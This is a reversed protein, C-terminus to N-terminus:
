QGFFIWGTFFTFLFTGVIIGIMDAFLDGFSAVHKDPHKYDYIEKGASAIIPPILGLAIWDSDFICIFSMSVITIISSIVFHKIKDM